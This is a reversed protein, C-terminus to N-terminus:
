LSRSQESGSPVQDVQKPIASTKQSNKSVVLFVDALRSGLQAGMGRGSDVCRAVDKVHAFGMWRGEGAWGGARVGM